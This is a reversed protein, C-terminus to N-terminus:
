TEILRSLKLTKAGKKPMRVAEPKLAKYLVFSAVWVACLVFVATYFLKFYEDLVAVSFPNLLGLGIVAGITVRQVKNFHTM